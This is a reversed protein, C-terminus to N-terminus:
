FKSPPWVARGWHYDCKGGSALQGDSERRGDFVQFRTNCRDCSEWGGAAEIGREAVKVEERTPPRLIYGYKGLAERSQLLPRLAALEEAPSLRTVLPVKSNVMGNDMVVGHVMMTRRKEEEERAVQKKKEEEGQYDAVTTKQFKVIKKKMVHTYISRMERAVKEEEDLALRLMKQSDGKGEHLRVYEKHLLTLLQLRIAHSAPSIPVLRPNLTLSEEPTTANTQVSSVPAHPKSIPTRSPLSAKAIEKPVATRSPLGIGKSTPPPVKRTAPVNKKLISKPGAAATEVKTKTRKNASAPSDALSIGGRGNNNSPTSDADDSLKRRKTEREKDSGGNGFNNEVIKRLRPDGSLIPSGKDTGASDLPKLAPPDASLAPSVLVLPAPPPLNHSFLCHTVTCSGRAELAPCPIHQWLSLPRFMNVPLHHSFFILSSTQDTPSLTNLSVRTATNLSSKNILIVDDVDNGIGSVRGM